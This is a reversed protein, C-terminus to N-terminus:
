QATPECSTAPLLLESPPVGLAIALRHINALSLNRRGREVQAVFTRDMGAMGALTEQSIRRELRLEKLRQGFGICIDRRFKEDM